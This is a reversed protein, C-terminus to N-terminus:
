KRFGDGKMPASVVKDGWRCVREGGPVPRGVMSSCAPSPQCLLAAFSESFEAATLDFDPGPLCLLWASSHKDREPWNWVPRAERDEYDELGRLLLRGRAMERQVGGPGYLAGHSSLARRVSGQSSLARM